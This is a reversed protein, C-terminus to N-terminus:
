NPTAVRLNQGMAPDSISDAGIEIRGAFQRVFSDGTVTFDYWQGSDAVDWTMTGVSQGPVNIPWPGDARYANAQVAVSGALAGTNHVKLVIQATVLNYCVQVEPNFGATAAAAVNGAFRRVFGNPGYVWLDYSGADTAVPSWTDNLTKGAEVTYRRPIADLHLKDYVHFVVGQQGSNSFLLTVTGASSVRASTHMEYPLGRSPRAGSEQFLPGPSGPPTVPPLQKQQAEIAAFDSVDPLDPWNQVSPAAFDFASTLDGCVARRWPSISDVSIGFRKELFMGMSTHDFVQSNVYGGKSWPSIVYM